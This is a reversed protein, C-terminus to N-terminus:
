NWLDVCYNAKYEMNLANISAKVSEIKELPIMKAAPNSYYGIIGDSLLYPDSILASMLYEVKRPMTIDGYEESPLIIHGVGGGSFVLRNTDAIDALKDLVDAATAGTVTVKVFIGVEQFEGKHLKKRLRKKM